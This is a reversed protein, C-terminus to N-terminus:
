DKTKTKPLAKFASGFLQHIEDLQARARDAAAQRHAQDAEEHIALEARAAEAVKEPRMAGFSDAAGPINTAFRWLLSSAPLPPENLRGVQDALGIAATLFDVRPSLPGIMRQATPWTSVALLGRAPVLRDATLASCLYYPRSHPSSRFSREEDRRLSTLRAAAMGGGFFADQVAVILKPAAPANLLTLARHAQDRLPLVSESSPVPEIGREATTLESLADDWALEARRLDARLVRAGALDGSTVARRVEIRLADIRRELDELSEAM